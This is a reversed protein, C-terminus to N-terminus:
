VSNRDSYWISFNKDQGVTQEIKLNMESLVDYSTLRGEMNYWVEMPAKLQNNLNETAMKDNEEGIEDLESQLESMEKDQYTEYMSTVFNLGDNIASVSESFGMNMFETVRSMSKNLTQKMLAGVNDLLSRSLMEQKVMEVTVETGAEKAAETLAEKAAVEGAKQIAAYLGLLAAIYGVIQAFMSILKVLGQASLGGFMSLAFSGIALTAAAYGAAKAIVAASANTSFGGSYVFVVIAVIVLIAAFAREFVSAKEVGYETELSVGLMTVFDSRRMMSSEYVKLSGNLFLSNSVGRTTTGNTALYVLMKNLVRKYTTDKLHTQLKNRFQGVPVYTRRGGVDLPEMSEYYALIQDILEDNIDIGMYEYEYSYSYKLVEGDIRVTNSTGYWEKFTKDDRKFVHSSMMAFIGVGYIPEEQSGPLREYNSPQTFVHSAAVLRSSPKNPGHPTDILGGDYLQFQEHNEEDTLQRANALYYWPNGELKARIDASNFGQSVVVGSESIEWPLSHEKVYRKTFGGYQVTTTLKDGVSYAEDFMDKIEQRTPIVLQTSAQTSLAKVRSDGAFSGDWEYATPELYFWMENIESDVDESIFEEWEVYQMLSVSLHFM